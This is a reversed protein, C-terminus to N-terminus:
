RQRVAGIDVTADKRVEVQVRPNGREDEIVWPLPLNDPIVLLDHTGVAVRDFRFRGQEDTKASFRGDLLVTINAAPRESASRVGDNNEDLFITGVIDGTAANPPGGLVGRPQGARYDYRLSLFISRDHPLTEFVPQNTIPDLVFPSRRSGRSEILNGLLSWRSAIRWRWGLNLDTGRSDDAGSSRAWRVSGDVSFTDTLDVGGYAALTATRSAGDRDQALEGFGASLSLRSGERMRLAHDVLVQWSDAGSSDHARDYQLRTQGWDSLRDVFLQLTQASDDGGDRGSQRATLGGGFGTRPSAQYRVYGNGYWGDFGMGSVSDIRDLAANASWRARNYDIRYYGGRVDNNIPWAGWALDPELRFLGYRHVFSGRDSRGDLWIGAASDGNADSALMNLQLSDRAGNWRHGTFLARTRGNQFDPLGQDDPVIRGDTLLVDVAGDIRPSWRWQAAATFVSGDGIEFGNLRSGTYSGGRGLGAQVRLGRERQRWDTSAGVMPVSPLIFRYQDRLLDPMPTNLVGLGNDLSWGGPMQLGRQWLTATGRLRQGEDRDRDSHFLLADASIAGWDSTDWYGGFAAGLEVSREGGFRTRHAIAEVHFARPPGALADDEDEDPPLPELKEPAIIRDRYTSPPEGADDAPFGFARFPDYVSGDYTTSDESGTDNGSGPTDRQAAPAAGTGSTAATAPTAWAAASLAACLAIALASPAPLLRHPLAIRRTM